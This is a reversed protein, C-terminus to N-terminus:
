IATLHNFNSARWCLCPVQSASDIASVAMIEVTEVYIQSISEYNLLRDACCVGVILM